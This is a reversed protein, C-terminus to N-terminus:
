RSYNTIVINDRNVSVQDASGRGRATLPKRLDNVLLILIAQTPLGTNDKYQIPIINWGLYLELRVPYNAPIVTGRSKGEAIIFDFPLRSILSKRVIKGNNAMMIDTPLFEFTEQNETVIKQVLAWSFQIGTKSDEENEAALFVPFLIEGTRLTISKESTQGPKLALGRFPPVPVFISQGELKNQPHVTVTGWWDAGAHLSQLPQQLTEPMTAAAPADMDARRRPARMESVPAFDRIVVRGNELYRQLEIPGKRELGEYYAVNLTALGDSVPISLDQWQRGPISNGEVVILSSTANAVRVTQKQAWLCVPFLIGLLLIFGIKKM